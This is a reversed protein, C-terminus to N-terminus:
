SNKPTKMVLLNRAALEKEISKELLIKRLTQKTKPGYLGAWASDKSSIIESELQFKILAEKTKPGFIATDKTDLHGMAILVKQLERVSPSVQGYRPNGIAVIYKEIKKEVGAIVEERQKQLKEEAEKLIQAEMERQEEVALAVKYDVKAVKRTKPGFYGAGSERRSIIVKKELQYDLLSPMVDRYEGTIEWEYEWLTSFLNQLKEIDEKKSYPWITNDFIWKLPDTPKDIAIVIEEEQTKNWMKSVLSRTKTGWYGAWYDYESRMIGNQKQLSFINDILQSNYKWDVKWTYIWKKILEEQLAKIDNYSSGVWIWKSYIWSAKKLRSTVYNPSPFKDIDLNWNWQQIWLIKWKVTRKGWAVARKLGTDGYWMWIDIRDYAYWRVWANVIAGWRDAVIWTGVWELYIATGFKYNKPAALMWEFVARWSAGHTGNWNLRKDAEYSGKIYYQQNPLPSYYATVVFHTDGSAYTQSFSFTGALNFIITFTLLFSALRKM